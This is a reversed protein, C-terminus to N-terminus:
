FAHRIGLGVAVPDSGVPTNTGTVRSAGAVGFSYQAFDDNMIQTYYGYVQTSKALHYAYGVALHQAGLDDEVNAPLADGDAATIDPDLAQSYRARFEHNGARFKAGLLWAFRSYDKLAPADPDGTAPANDQNYTLQEVMGMLTLAGMPLPLEYGAGVRWALDKSARDSDNAADIVGLGRFDERYEVTGYVSLPGQDFNASVGLFMPDVTGEASRFEDVGWQLRFGLGVFKPSWYLLSNGGRTDFGALGAAPPAANNISGTKVGFGPSGMLGQQGFVDTNGFPDDAKTGYHASKFPTDWNGYALTGFMGTLGVRSNRNCPSALAEGDINAGIECQYVASVADSLALTGRVGVNSSDPSIVFRGSVNDEGPAAGSAETYHLNVNLTGYVQVVPPPPPAPPAAAPEAPAAPAQALVTFPLTLALSALSKRLATM